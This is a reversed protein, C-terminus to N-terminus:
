RVAYVQSKKRTKNEVYAKWLKFETFFESKYKLFYVWVKCSFGNTFTVFYRSGVM